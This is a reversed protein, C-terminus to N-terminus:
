KDIGMTSTLITGRLEPSISLRDTYYTMDCTRAAIFWLRCSSYLAILSGFWSAFSLSRASAFNRCSFSEASLFMGPPDVAISTVTTESFTGVLTGFLTGAFWRMLPISDLDLLAACSSM